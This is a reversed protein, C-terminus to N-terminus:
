AESVIAPQVAKVPSDVLGTHLVATVKGGVEQYTRGFMARHTCTPPTSRVGTTTTPRRASLVREPTAAARTEIKEATNERAQAMKAGGRQWYYRNSHMLKRVREARELLKSM